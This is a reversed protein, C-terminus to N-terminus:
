RSQGSEPHVQVAMPRRVLAAHGAGAPFPAQVPRPGGAANVRRNSTPSRVSPAPRRVLVAQRTPPRRRCSYPSPLLRRGGPWPGPRRATRSRAAPRRRTKTGRPFFFLHPRVWFNGKKERVHRAVDERWNRRGGCRM